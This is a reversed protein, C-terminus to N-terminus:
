YEANETLARSPQDTKSKIEDVLEKGATLLSSFSRLWESTRQRIKRGRDPSMMIGVVACAAAAATIGLIVKTTSNM